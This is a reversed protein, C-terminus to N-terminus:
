TKSSDTGEYKRRTTEHFIGSEATKGESIRPTASRSKSPKLLDEYQDMCGKYGKEASGNNM